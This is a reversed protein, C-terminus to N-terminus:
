KKDEIPSAIRFVRVWIQTISRSHDAQSRTGGLNALTDSHSANSLEGILYVGGSQVSATTIFTQGASIPATNNVYGILRRMDLNLALTAKEKGLYHVTVDCKFGIDSNQFSSTTATGAAQGSGGSITQTPVPITTTDSQSSKVGDVCLFFPQADVSSKTSTKATHIIDKLSATANASWTPSSQGSAISMQAGLDLSPNLDLGINHADQDSLTLVHVQCLWSDLPSAEVKDLLENVRALIEVHDGLVLLGDPTCTSKGDVSQVTSVAQLVSASDLRRVQRVLVAKDETISDGLYYITGIKAVKVGYRRALASFIDDATAQHLELTVPKDDLSSQTVVSVEARDVLWRVLSSIPMAQASLNFRPSERAPTQSADQPLDKLRDYIKRSWPDRSAMQDLELTSRASPSQKDLACSAAMMSCLLVAFPMLKKSLIAPSFASTLKKMSHM